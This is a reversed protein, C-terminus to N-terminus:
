GGLYVNFAWARYKPTGRFIGFEVELYIKGTHCHEWVHLSVYPLKLPATWPYWLTGKVSM